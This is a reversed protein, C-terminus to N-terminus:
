NEFFSFRCMLTIPNVVFFISSPDKNFNLEFNMFVPSFNISVIKDLEFDLILSIDPGFLLDYNLGFVSFSFSQILNIIVLLILCERKAVNEWILVVAICNIICYAFLLVNATYFRAFVLTYFSILFLFLYVIFYLRFLNKQM